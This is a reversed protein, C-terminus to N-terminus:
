PLRKVAAEAFQQTKELGVTSSVELMLKGKRVCIVREAGRKVQFAEEGLESLPTPDNASLMGKQM